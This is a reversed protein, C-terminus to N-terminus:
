GISLVHSAKNGHLPLGHGALQTLRMSSRAPRIASCILRIKALQILYMGAPGPVASWVVGATEVAMRASPSAYRSAAKARQAGSSPAVLAM